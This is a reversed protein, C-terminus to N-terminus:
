IEKNTRQKETGIVYSKASLTVRYFVVYWTDCGGEEPPCLVIDQGILDDATVDQEHECYPCNIKTSLAM